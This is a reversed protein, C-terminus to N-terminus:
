FHSFNTKSGQRFKDNVYNLANIDRNQTQLDLVLLVNNCM